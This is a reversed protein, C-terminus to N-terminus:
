SMMKSGSVKVLKPQMLQNQHLHLHLNRKHLHIDQKVQHHQKHKDLKQL